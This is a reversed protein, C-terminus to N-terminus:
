SWRWRKIRHSPARSNKVKKSSDAGPDVKIPCGSRHALQQLAEDLRQTPMDYDIPTMQCAAYANAGTLCTVALALSRLIKKM